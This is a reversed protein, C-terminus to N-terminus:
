ARALMRIAAPALRYPARGFPVKAAVKPPIHEDVTLAGEWVLGWLAEEYRETGPRLGASRAAAFAFVPAGVRGHAQEADIARLLRLGDREAEDYTSV